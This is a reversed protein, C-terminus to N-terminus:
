KKYVGYSGWPVEGDYAYLRDRVDIRNDYEPIPYHLNITNVPDELETETFTLRFFTRLTDEHVIPSRHVMYPDILMLAGPAVQYVNDESAQREFEYFVNHRSFDLHNLFFPQICFETGITDVLIYSHEIAHNDVRVGQFGDVHWGAPRQSEGESIFKNDITIHAHFDNFRPNVHLETELAFRIIPLLAELESPINLVTEGAKKIPCRLVRMGKFSSFDFNFRSLEIPPAAYQFHEVDFIKNIRSWVPSNPQPTTVWRPALELPIISTGIQVPVYKVSESYRM